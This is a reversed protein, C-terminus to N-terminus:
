TKDQDSKFYFGVVFGLPSGIALLYDKVIDQTLKFFATLIILLIVIGFYGLIFIKAILSRTTERRTAIEIGKSDKSPQAPEFTLQSAKDM